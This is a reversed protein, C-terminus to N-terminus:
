FFPGAPLFRYSLFPLLVLCFFLLPSLLTSDFPLGSIGPLPSVDSMGPRGEAPPRTPPGIAYCLQAFKVNSIATHCPKDLVGDRAGRFLLAGVWTWIFSIWPSCFLSTETYSRNTGGVLFTRKSQILTLWYLGNSRLGGFLAEIKQWDTSNTSPPSKTPVFARIPFVCFIGVMYFLLSYWVCSHSWTLTQIRFPPFDCEFRM